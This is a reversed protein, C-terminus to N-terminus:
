FAPEEDAAKVQVTIPGGEIPKLKEVTRGGSLKTGEIHVQVPAAGNDFWGNNLMWFLKGVIRPASTNFTFQEGVPPLSQNKDAKRDTIRFAHVLLFLQSGDYIFPSQIEPDIPGKKVEFWEIQVDSGSLKAANWSDFDDSEWMEAENEATLIKSIDADTTSQRNETAQDLTAMESMRRLLQQFPSAKQVAGNGTEEVQGKSAM